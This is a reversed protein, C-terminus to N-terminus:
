CFRLKMRDDSLHAAKVTPTTPTVAPLPTSNLTEPLREVSELVEPSVIAIPWEQYEASDDQAMLHFTLAILSLVGILQPSVTKLAERM